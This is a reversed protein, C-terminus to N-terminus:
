RTVTFNGSSEFNKGDYGEAKLVYYYTGDSFERPNWSGNPTTIEGVLKGYRNYISVQLTKLNNQKITFVDNKGSNDATVINPILEIESGMYITVPHMVQCQKGGNVVTLVVEYVGQEDYYCSADENPNFTTAQTQNGFDWHFETGSSLNEFSVTLPGLGESPSPIFDVDMVTVLVTATDTCGNNDTGVVTYLTSTPPTAIPNAISPNSLSSTNNWEYSLAGSANLQAQENPCIIIAGNATVTPLSHVVVTIVATTSCGQIAGTVTYTTTTSPTAEVLSNTTSNLGTAPAWNYDEAGTVHLTATEGQCIFEQSNLQLTPIAIVDITINTSSNCGNNKTYTITTTGVGATSPTFIGLSSDSIGNGSWEGGPVNSTLTVPQANICITPPASISLNTPSEVTISTLGVAACVGPVTYQILHNGTAAVSPDFIGNQADIIGTGSWTGGTTDVSLQIPSDTICVPEVPMVIIPISQTVTLVITASLNCSNAPTYTITHSGIGASAPNFTGATANIIGPGSWTGGSMNSTLNISASNSCFTTNTANIVAQTGSQFDYSRSASTTGGCIAGPHNGTLTLTFETDVQPGPNLTINLSSTANPITFPPNATWAYGYNFYLPSPPPAPVEFISATAQDCSNDNINSSFGSPTTYTYTVPNGGESLGSFSLTAGTLTGFDLNICDYIQVAWGAQSATCGNLASWDIPTPSGTPGYSGYTGSYNSTVPFLGDLDFEPLCPDFNASSSTSFCLNNFNDNSNCVSGQGNAGPNPSLLIVPSGCSEPGRLYFAMDSVWTHTGTYCVTIETDEDVILMTSPDLNTSPPNYYPTIQGQNIQGTLQVPGCGAPINTVNVSPPTTMQCVWVVDTAIEVNNGDTIQVRYGGPALNSQTSVPVGNQTTFSVWSNSVPSFKTWTFNWGPTGGTPTAVLTATAGSCIVFLSDNNNSTTYETLTRYTANSCSIQANANVVGVLAIGVIFLIRKIM